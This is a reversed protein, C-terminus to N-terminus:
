AFLKRGGLAALALMGSGLLVLTSPEPTVQVDFDATGLGYQGTDDPGGIIQFYGAYLGVPTGIPVDVDFLEGTFSAGSALSLPFNNNYPSDDVSLPSDVFTNDGNLFLTIDTNNTITADFEVVGTDGAVQFAPNLTITIPDAKGATGALLFCAITASFFLSAKLNKM